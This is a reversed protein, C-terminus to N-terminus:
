PNKSTVIWADSVGHNGSLDGDNSFSDGAIIFGGDTTTIIANGGDYGTGGQVKQWVKNGTADLKVMWADAGGHVGSVDGDKSDASGAMVCGGDTTTTISYAYDFGTGGLAKQWVKNGVPDLKVVWADGAGHFGSVDGNFSRTGGAIVYGGDSTPMISKAEDDSTGGLAHQWVINGKGDLKVVWADLGGHYGSADGDNASVDGAMVCGGDSTTIIANGVDYGTSGLAKQWVKNGSNDLKIVWADFGGHKGTVDGDNSLTIGAIFYGGDSAATISRAEDANTGGLAKQWVINGSANLKVVWADSAGHNGKVDGDNSNAYGAMVYGGDSTTIVSNAVDYGTGGLAKQWTKNGSKDIKVVWADYLGHNGSVDGDNSETSGAMIYGGDATKAIAAGGDRKTGGYVINFQPVPLSTDTSDDGHHLIEHLYIKNCSCLSLFLISLFLGVKEKM